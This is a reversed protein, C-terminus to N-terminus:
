STPNGGPLSGQQMFSEKASGSTVTRHLAQLVREGRRRERKERRKGSVKKRAAAYILYMSNDVTEENGRIVKEFPRNDDDSEELNQTIRYELARPYVTAQCALRMRCAEICQM